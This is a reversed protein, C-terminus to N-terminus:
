PAEPPLVPAAAPTTEASSSAAPAQALLDIRERLLTVLAGVAGSEIDRVCNPCIQRQPNDGYANMESGVAVANPPGESCSHCQKGRGCDLKTCCIWCAGCVAM